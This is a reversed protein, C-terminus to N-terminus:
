AAVVASVPTAATAPVESAPRHADRIRGVVREAKTQDRLKEIKEAYTTTLRESKKETEVFFRAPIEGGFHAELAAVDFERVTKVTTSLTANVGAADLRFNGTRPDVVGNDRVIRSVEASLEKERATFAAKHARVSALEAVVSNIENQNM